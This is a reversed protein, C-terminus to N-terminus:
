LQQSQFFLRWNREQNSRFSLFFTDLAIQRQSPILLQCARAVKDRKEEILFLHLHCVGYWARKPRSRMWQGKGEISQAYLLQWGCGSAVAKTFCPAQRPQKRTGPSHEEESSAATTSSFTTIDWFAIPIQRKTCCISRHLWVTRPCKNRKGKAEGLGERRKGSGSERERKEDGTDTKGFTSVRRRLSEQWNCILM